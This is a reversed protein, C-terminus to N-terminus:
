LCEHLTKPKRKWHNENRRQSSALGNQSWCASHNDPALWPVLCVVAGRALGIGPPVVTWKLSRYFEAVVPLDAFKRESPIREFTM